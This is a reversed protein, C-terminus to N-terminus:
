LNLGSKPDSNIENKKAYRWAGIAFILVSLMNFVLAFVLNYLSEAIGILVMYRKDAAVGEIFSLSAVVGTFFGLCGSIFTILELSIILPLFRKEPNIAYRIVAWIVLIGCILTPWMGWGGIKFANAFNM